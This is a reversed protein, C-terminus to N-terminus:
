QPMEGSIKSWLAVYSLEIVPPDLGCQEPGTPRSEQDTTKGIGSPQVIMGLVPNDYM